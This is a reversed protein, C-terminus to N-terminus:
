IHILSLNWVYLNYGIQRAIGALEAIVREEEFTEVVLVAYRAKIYDIISKKYDM